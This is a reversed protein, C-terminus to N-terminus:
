SRRALSVAVLAIREVDRYAPKSLEEGFVDPDLERCGFTLDREAALTAIAKCLANRGDVIAAGTYLIVRGGPAIRDAAMRTMELPVEGGHMGGGDRYARSDADIIYPPNIVALDIPGSLPELTDTEITEVAIGAAAANIRALRLAKPNLDTLTVHVGPNALAAVIGGVGAGAGMDVVRAGPPLPSRALEAVILDAFRYSDPGFFVSDPQDTPYASHLFLRGYLRSVRLRSKLLGNGADEIMGAQRLLDAVKRDITGPVFPLSWGLMGRLDHARRMTPRAIVRAHSAPTPTVFDYAREDLLRLLDLLAADATGTM